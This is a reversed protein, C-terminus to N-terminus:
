LTTRSKVASLADKASRKVFGNPDDQAKELAPISAESGIEKLIAVAERRVRWEASELQKLVAPEADPGMTKLFEAAAGRDSMEGLREAIPAIAEKAKHQGLAKIASVRVMASDDGLAEVLAPVSEPTSWSELAKAAFSRLVAERGALLNELAQAVQADPQEPSKQAFQQAARIMRPTDGSQLDALAAELDEETLPAKREAQAERAAQELQAQEAEDMLHYTVKIPIEASLNGSRAVMKMSYDLKEFVGLAKNFTLKGQGEMEFRPKGQETEATKLEYKKQIVTLKDDNTEIAYTMKEQAPLREENGAFPGFQPFMDKIVIGSDNAVTWTQDATKPLPEIMLHSLNGLLYPLQSSGEERTINGLPDLTLGSPRAPSFPGVGTMPSAPGMGRPGRPGMMGRPGRPGRPGMPGSPRRRVASQGEKGKQVEHLGGRFSLDTRDSEVSVVTYSPNGSLEDM